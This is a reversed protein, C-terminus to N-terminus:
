RLAAELGEIMAAHPDVARARALYAQAQARHGARLALLGLGALADGSGPNVDLGHRFLRRAADNEGLNAAENAASLVYKMNLPAITLAAQYDALSERRRGRRDALVGSTFYSEAVADPHTGLAILRARVRAELAAAAGADTRALTAIDNQLADVDNAVFDYELALRTQGRAAAIAALTANRRGGSPMRVAYGQAAVLDGRALANHALADEVYYAPAIADLARYVALGFGAPVRAALSQPGAQAYLADSAAQVCAACVLVVAMVAGVVLHALRVSSAM